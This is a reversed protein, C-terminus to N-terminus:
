NAVFNNLYHYCLNKGSTSDLAKSKVNFDRLSMYLRDIALFTSIYVFLFLDVALQGNPLLSM